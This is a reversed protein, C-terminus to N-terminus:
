LRLGHRDIIEAIADAHTDVQEYVWTYHDTKWYNLLEDAKKNGFIQKMADIELYCVLVHLYTASEDPSGYPYGVKAPGLLKALDARAAMDADHNADLHWHIQEHIFTSYLLYPKELHRTHLTLVPHSHPIARIDVHLKSTFMWKSVDHSETFEQIVAGTRYEREHNNETTILLEAATASVNIMIIMVWFTIIKTM